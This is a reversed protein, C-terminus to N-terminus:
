TPALVECGCETARNIHQCISISQGFRKGIYKIGNGFTEKQQIPVLDSVPFPSFSKQNDSAPSVRLVTASYIHISETPKETSCM